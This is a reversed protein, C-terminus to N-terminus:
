RSDRICRRAQNASDLRPGLGVAERGVQVASHASVIQVGPAFGVDFCEPACAAGGILVPIPREDDQRRLAHIAAEMNRRQESLTASLLVLDPQFDVVGLILETVPVDAGLNVVRWGDLAFLDSVAHLGLDHRDGSVTGSLISKGNSPLRRCSALLQAMVSRTTDTVFHEEAVTIENVHWMRGIERLALLCVDLYADAATLTGDAVADLVLRSARDRDGELTAVIYRTALRGKEGVTGLDSAPQTAPADFYKLALDILTRSSSRSREPLEQDLVRSLCELSRHLFEQPLDRSELSIRSWQVRVAFDDPRNESLATGLVELHGCLLERYFSHTGPGLSKALETHQETMQDAALAAIGRANRRIITAAFDADEQSIM